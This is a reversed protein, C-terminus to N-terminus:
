IEMTESVIIDESWTKLKMNVFDYYWGHISLSGETVKDKIFPFSLLNSLSTNIAEQELCACKDEFKANPMIMNVKTRAPLGVNMWQGVFDTSSFANADFAEVGEFKEGMLAKIGGCGSHGMVIIHEVGLVKVAYELAASTGATVGSGAYPPVLNAINRVTFVDGPRSQLVMNPSVRSDCCAIVMVKPTQTGKLFELLEPMVDASKSRFSAFGQKLRGITKYGEASQKGSSVNVPLVVSEGASDIAAREAKTGTLLQWLGTMVGEEKDSAKMAVSRAKNAKLSILNSNNGFAPKMASRVTNTRRAAARDAVKNMPRVAVANTFSLAEM